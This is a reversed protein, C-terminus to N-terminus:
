KADATGRGELILWALGAAITIDFTLCFAPWWPPVGPNSILSAHIFDFVGHGALALAVIWLRSKFGVVAAIAFITMVLLEIIIARTSGGMVGFLLYYSAIVILVVPYFARDRDFGVSKAFLVTLGALAVGVVYPL